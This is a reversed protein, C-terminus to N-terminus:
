LIVSTNRSPAHPKVRNSINLSLLDSRGIYISSVMCLVSDTEKGTPVPCICRVAIFVVLIVLSWVSIYHWRFKADM